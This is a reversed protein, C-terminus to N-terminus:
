TSSFVSTTFLPVAQNAQVAGLSASAIVNCREARLRLTQNQGSCAAPSSIPGSHPGGGPCGKRERLGPSARLASGCKYTIFRREM